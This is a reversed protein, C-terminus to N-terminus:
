EAEEAAGAPAPEGNEVRRILADALREAAERSHRFFMSPEILEVETVVPHDEDDRLMDVRAYLLQDAEAVRLVTQATQLEQATLQVPEDSAGFDNQVRYDGAPPHKVVAHTLEGEVFIASREGLTEVTSLYPQVLADGQALLDDLHRQAQKVGADTIDFRLTGSSTAGVAPKIFGRTGDADDLLAKLDAEGGQRIWQTPVVPVGVRELDRLYSKHANWRVVEAPNFLRTVVSVHAIWDLYEELRRTYDWTTRILCADCMAWEVDPDDWPIVDFDVGRGRLAEHLAQDDQEWEPLDRCTALVINM